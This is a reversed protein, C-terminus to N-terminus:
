SGPSGIKFETAALDLTQTVLASSPIATAPIEIRRRVGEPHKRIFAAVDVVRYDFSEVALVAIVKRAVAPDV